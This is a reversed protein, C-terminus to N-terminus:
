LLVSARPPFRTGKAGRACSFIWKSVCFIYMIDLNHAFIGPSFYRNWMANYNLLTESPIDEWDRQLANIAAIRALSNKSKPFYTGKEQAHQGRPAERAFVVLFVTKRPPKETCTFVLTEWISPLTTFVSSCLPSHNFPPLPAAVAMISLREALPTVGNSAASCKSNKPAPSSRPTQAFPKKCPSSLSPPLGGEALIAFPSANSSMRTHPLPSSLNSPLPPHQFSGGHAVWFVLGRCCADNGRSNSGHMRRRKVRFCLSECRSCRGSQQQTARVVLGGHNWYPAWKEGVCKKKKKKSTLRRERFENWSLPSLLASRRRRSVGAPPGTLRHSVSHSCCSPAEGEQSHGRVCLFPARKTNWIM